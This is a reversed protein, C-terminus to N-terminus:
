VKYCSIYRIEDISDPKDSYFLDVYKKMFYLMAMMICIYYKSLLFTILIIFISIMMYLIISLNM